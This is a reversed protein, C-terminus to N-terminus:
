EFCQRVYWEDLVTFEYLSRRIFTIYLFVYGFPFDINSRFQDTHNGIKTFHIAIATRLIKCFCLPLMHSYGDTQGAPEADDM